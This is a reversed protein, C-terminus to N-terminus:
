RTSAARDRRLTVTITTGGLPSGDVTITGHHREVIRLCTSLGIGHGKRAAPDVQAFMDFVRLRDAPPIGLGNDSVTIEWGGPTATGAIEVRPLRDPHRYKIANDVLNQLLQRLLTPDADLCLDGDTVVEARQADILTRLDDTVGGAVEALRVAGFSCPANGARAYFLLAQVLQQMRGMSTSAGTLWKAAREDLRDGYLQGLLELYGSASALPRVLDHSVAAAFGELEDNSRQLEAQAAELKHRHTRDATVDTMAIVAGIREGADSVISRGNAVLNILEGDVTRLVMEADTVVDEDLARRLPRQDEPLPTVGDAALVECREAVIWPAADPDAAAGGWHRAARNLLTMRGQADAAAIGVDVSELLSETFKRNREAETALKGNLLAQRRREFLGVIVQALDELRQLQREGLVKPVTDFVCVTGLAYGNPTILPASAYFRVDALRGDVWPNTAFVHHRSADPVHMIKGDRFAVACMSDDRSTDCGDFGITTIQCQRTEDILNLAATPVDAITAAIRIVASLEDDAPNDLLGYEHLAAVRAQELDILSTPM